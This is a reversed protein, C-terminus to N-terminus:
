LHNVNYPWESLLFEHKQLGEYFLKGFNDRHDTIILVELIGVYGEPGEPGRM